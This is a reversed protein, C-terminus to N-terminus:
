IINYLIIIIILVYLPFFSSFKFEDQKVDEVCYNLMLLLFAKEESKFNNKKQQQQKKKPKLTQFM